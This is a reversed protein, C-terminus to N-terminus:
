GQKVVFCWTTWIAVVARSFVFSHFSVELLELIVVLELKNKTAFRWDAAQTPKDDVNSKRWVKINM